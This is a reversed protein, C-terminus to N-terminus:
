EVPRAVLLTGLPEEPPASPLRGGGARGACLLRPQLMCLCLYLRYGAVERVDLVPYAHSYCVSVCICVTAPWRGCTWCLTPTATVYLSVSVSPLRGGGARGTCPQRPQLMCLCLYLRYGAAERVDLVPNAHSYCVSVCICVTAPRRGCTWCLTPTATVYLSVSVSPLRGGGARGTCPQRPQLMCLCLYLRYGAAERVDLVPNAHSYCVSVCICVTAPRRGCTWCLTPTATVYLSVSVSPLRGGGARGACPLRPQLMCLCLYLRYGAAERVDLVPYAHSYCVSVCICVTAPRRGCTWYLTPTATVYLCVSLWDAVSWASAPALPVAPLCPVFWDLFPKVHKERWGRRVDDLHDAKLSVDFKQSTESM